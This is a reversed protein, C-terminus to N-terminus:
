LNIKDRVTRKILRKQKLIIFSKVHQKAILFEEFLEKLDFTSGSKHNQRLAPPSTRRQRHCAPVHFLVRQLPQLREKVCFRLCTIQEKQHERMSIFEIETGFLAVPLLKLFDAPHHGAAVIHDAAGDAVGEPHVSALFRQKESFLCMFSVDRGRGARHAPPFVTSFHVRRRLNQKMM